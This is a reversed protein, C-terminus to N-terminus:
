VERLFRVNMDASPDPPCFASDERALPASTASASRSSSKGAECGEPPIIGLRPLENVGKSRLDYGSADVFTSTNPYYGECFPKLFPVIHTSSALMFASHLAAQTYVISMLNPRVSTTNSPKLKWLRLAILPVILLRCAFISIPIMRKSIAIRLTWIVRIALSVIAVDLIVGSVEICIYRIYLNRSGIRTDWPHKVDGRLAVAMTAAFTWLSYAALPAHGMATGRDQGLLREAFISASMRTFGMSLVYLISAVYLAKECAWEDSPTFTAWPNGLGLHVAYCLAAVNGASLLFALTMATDDHGWKDRKGYKTCLRVTFTLFAWTLFLIASITASPASNGSFYM